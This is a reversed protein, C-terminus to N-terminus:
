KDDPPASTYQTQERKELTEEDDLAEIFTENM